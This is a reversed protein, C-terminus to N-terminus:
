LSRFLSRAAVVDATELGERLSKFVPGLVERAQDVDGHDRLFGALSTAARLEWAQASQERALALSQRLCAEPLARNSPEAAAAILGRIRLMEPKYFLMGGRDAGEIALDIAQVADGVHGTALLGEALACIFTPILIPYKEPRQPDIVGRLIGVGTAPDGRKVCLEGRWGDAVMRYVSLGNEDAHRGLDAIIDAARQWDRCWVFISVLWMSCLCLTVPHNLKAAEALAQSAVVVAQEPEGKLYLCRAKAALTLLHFDHGFEAVNVSGAPLPGSFSVEFFRWAAAQDGGLTYGAGLMAHAIALATADAMEEAVANAQQALPLAKHFDGRGIWFFYLVHLLRFQLYPESFEEALELSRALAIRAEETAGRSARISLGLSAQLEMERRTGISAEDLVSIAQKSWRACQGPLSVELLLPASAEALAIGLGRDGEESFCWKLAAFIDGLHERYVALGTERSFKSMHASARELLGCYYAAHRRSAENVEGCEVLRELAYARTTELTEWRANPSGTTSVLSKANLSEIGDMTVSPSAIGSMLVMAADLTFGASFLALFRLLHREPEALLAYSWDLAARLTQHRPLATRRGGKLLGFRDELGSLVKPLGLTATRAAAFEIALPIGDLHRCIEVIIPLSGQPLVDSRSANTRAIFLQVASHQIMVEPEQEDSPPVDLSPVRYTREGDIRLPERSTVLVSTRPCRFVIAEVLRASADILHECNDLVLLVKRAGIADAVVAPSIESSGLKVDLVGAVASPVLSPDSLSALEVFGGDGEFSPFLSHAVELALRTKGVGGSGTLTVARHASLLDLVYKLETTRGILESGALPFNNRYPRSSTSVAAVDAMEESGREPSITWAGILGYGRGSVTRLIARDAGLARRIASVHVQLTNESIAAGPWLRDMIDNKSVIEGASRILMEFIDFARGGLPVYAGRARLERRIFNVEWRGSEHVM